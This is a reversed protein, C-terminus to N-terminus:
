LAIMMIIVGMSLHPIFPLQTKRGAKKFILLCTAMVSSILLAVMLVYLLRHVGLGGGLVLLVIADGLGFAQRSLKSFLVMGGGFLVGIISDVINFSDDFYIYGVMLGILLLIEKIDVEKHVIDKISAIILVIVILVRIVWM